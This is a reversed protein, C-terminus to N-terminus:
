RRILTTFSACRPELALMDDNIRAGEPCFSATMVVDSEAAERLARRRIEHWDSYIVLDCYACSDFDRRLAYYEADKEFFTIRSWAAGVGAFPRSLANRTRQGVLFLADVRFDHDECVM